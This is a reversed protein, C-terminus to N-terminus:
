PGKRGQSPGFLCLIKIIKIGRIYQHCAIINDKEPYDSHDKGPVLLHSFSRKVRNQDVPKHPVALAALHALGQAVADIRQLHNVFVTRIGQTKRQNRAVRRSVIHPKIVLPYLGASIKGILDPIRGAKDHHIHILHRVKWPFIQFLRVQLRRILPNKGLQISQDPIYSVVHFAKLKSDRHM